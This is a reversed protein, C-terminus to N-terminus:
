CCCAAAAARDAATRGRECSLLVQENALAAVYSARQAIIDCRALQETVEVASTRAAGVALRDSIDAWMAAELAAVDQATTTTM